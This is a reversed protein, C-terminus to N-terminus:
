SVVLDLMSIGGAPAGGGPYDVYVSIDATDTSATNTIALNATSATTATTTSYSSFTLTVPSTSQSTYVFSFEEMFDSTACTGAQGALVISVTGPTTGTTVTTGSTCSSASAIQLPTAGQALGTVGAYSVEYGSATQNATTQTFSGALAFGGVMALMAVVTAVYVTRRTPGRTGAHRTQSSTRDELFEKM